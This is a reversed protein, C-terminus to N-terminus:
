RKSLGAYYGAAFLFVGMVVLPLVILLPTIMKDSATVATSAACIVALVAYFTANRRNNM